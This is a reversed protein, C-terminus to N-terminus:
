SAQDKWVPHFAISHSGIKKGESIIERVNSEIGDQPQIKKMSSNMSRNRNNFKKHGNSSEFEKLADHREVDKFTECEPSSLVFICKTILSGTQTQLVNLLKQSRSRIAWAGLSLEEPLRPLLEQMQRKQFRKGCVSNQGQCQLYDWNERGNAIRYAQNYMWFFDKQWNLVAGCKISVGSGQIKNHIENTNKRKTWRSCDKSSALLSRQWKKRKKNLAAPM